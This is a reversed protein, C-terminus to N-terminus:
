FRTPRTAVATCSTRGYGAARNRVGLGAAAAQDAPEKMASPFSTSTSSRSRSRGRNDAASAAPWRASSNPLWDTVAGSLSRTM